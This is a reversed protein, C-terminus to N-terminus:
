TFRSKRLARMLRFPYYLLLLTITTSRATASEIGHLETTRPYRMVYRYFDPLSCEVRRGSTTVVMSQDYTIEFNNEFLTLALDIDEHFREAPDLQTLHGVAKWATARLAMNPGLLFPEAKPDEYAKKRLTGDLWSLFRRFPMDYFVIPGSVADIDPDQFRHRITEVWNETVISDADTRAIVDSRVRDFGYNRTPALGQHDNQEFLRIDIQPNDEQYRRVISATSDTSKNNVVIIEDPASTQTICSELCTGIFQEENYAPIVIAVSPLQSM